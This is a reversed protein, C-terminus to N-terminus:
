FKMWTLQGERDMLVARETIRRVTHGDPLLSGTFYRSGDASALYATQGTLHVTFRHGAAHRYATPREPPSEKGVSAFSLSRLM